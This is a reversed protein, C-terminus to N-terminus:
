FKTTQYDTLSFPFIRILPMKLIATVLMKGKKVVINKRGRILLDPAYQKVMTRRDTPRDTRTDTQVIKAHFSLM